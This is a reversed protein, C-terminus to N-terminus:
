EKEKFDPCEWVPTIILKMKSLSDLLISTQCKKEDFYAKHKSCYECLSVRKYKDKLSGIIWVYKGDRKCKQFISNNSKLKLM